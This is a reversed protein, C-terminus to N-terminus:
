RGKEGIRNHLLEKAPSLDIFKKSFLLSLTMGDKEIMLIRNARSKLYSKEIDYLFCENKEIPEKGFYFQVDISKETQSFVAIASSQKEILETRNQTKMDYFGEDSIDFGMKLCSVVNIDAGEPLVKKLYAASRNKCPEVIQELEGNYTIEFVFSQSIDYMDSM